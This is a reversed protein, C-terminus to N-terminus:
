LLVSTEQSLKWWNVKPRYSPKLVTSTAMFSRFVLLRKGAAFEIGLDEVAKLTKDTCAAPNYTLRAWSFDPWGSRVIKIPELDPSLAGDVMVSVSAVALTLQKQESQFFVTTNSM